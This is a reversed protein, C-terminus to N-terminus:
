TDGHIPGGSAMGMHVAFIHGVLEQGNGQIADKLQWARAVYRTVKVMVQIMQCYDRGKLPKSKTVDLIEMCFSGALERDGRTTAFGPPIVHKHGTFKSRQEQRTM